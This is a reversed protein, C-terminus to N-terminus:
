IVAAPDPAPAVPAEVNTVSATQPAPAPAAPAELRRLREELASMRQAYDQKLVQLEQKIAAAETAPDAAMAPTTATACALALVSGACLRSLRTSPSMITPTHSSRSPAPSLVSTERPEFEQKTWLIVLRCTAVM